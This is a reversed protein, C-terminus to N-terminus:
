PYNSTLRTAYCQCRMTACTYWWFTGCAHTNHIVTDQVTHILLKPTDWHELHLSPYDSTVLTTYACYHILNSNNKLNVATVDFTWLQSMLLLLYICSLATVACHVICMQASYVQSCLCRNCVQGATCVANVSSECLGCKICHIQSLVCCHM